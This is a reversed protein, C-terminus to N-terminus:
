WARRPPSPGRRTTTRDCRWRTPPSAAGAGRRDLHALDDHRSVVRTDELKPDVALHDRGTAVSRRGRRDGHARALTRDALSGARSRAEGVVVRADLARAVSRDRDRDRAGLDVTRDRPAVDDDARERIAPLSRGRRRRRRRPRWRRWGGPRWRRWGRAAVEAVGEEAVEAEAVAEAAAVAAVRM